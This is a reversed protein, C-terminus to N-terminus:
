KWEIRGPEGPPPPSSAPASLPQQAKLVRYIPHTGPGNVQPPAPPSFLAASSSCEGGGKRM